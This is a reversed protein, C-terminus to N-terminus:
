LEFEILKININLPGRIRTEGRGGSFEPGARLTNTAVRWGFNRIKGPVKAKWILDWISQDNPNKSSNSPNQALQPLGVAALKYASRVTFLGSKEPAWAVFDTRQRPSTRIKLIHEIDMAWFHDRLIDMRWAGNVDLFDSVRNFRCNRKPTIPRYSYPRPIWPDRWTRILTGNGIRWMIGKKLLELGHLIGKWVASGNGSLVTDLLHGSAYYKAKLLGSTM